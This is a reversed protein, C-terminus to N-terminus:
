QASPSTALWTIPEWHRWCTLALPGRHPVCIGRPITSRGKPHHSQRCIRVITQRPVSRGDSAAM